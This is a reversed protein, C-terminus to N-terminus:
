KKSVKKSLKKLNTIKDKHIALDDEHLQKISGIPIPNHKCRPHFILNTAKLQDYTMYGKTEGTLSIVMGEFNKCPDTAGKVPIVALDRGSEMAQAKLGEVYAQHTKTKVVMDTYNKLDWKRGSKDIVGVFGNVKITKSLGEIQLDKIILRKVEKYSEGQLANLQIHKAVTDRIVRKLKKKTNDTAFLLDDMTDAILQNAKYWNITAFPFENLISNYDTNGTTAIYHNLQGNVYEKNIYDTIEGQVEMEMSNLQEEIQRMLQLETMASINSFDGGTYRLTNVLNNLIRSYAKSLIRGIKDTPYDLVRNPIEPKSKNYYKLVDKLIQEFEQKTM